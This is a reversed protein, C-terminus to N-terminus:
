KEDRMLVVDSDTHGRSLGMKKGDFSWQFDVILESKFNTIQRGPSGDLPQLWLNDADKSRFPYVVAKGDRAFRITNEQPQQMALFKTNQPSDVPLLALVVKPSSPTAFTPFAVLKGDPSIDFGYYIPLETVQETKGGALPVKCLNLGKVQDIYYVWKGDASCVSQSDIKGDSLQKLNGGGSDMRWISMRNAGGHGGLPVVIYRGNACGSPEMPFGDEQPSTLPTKSRSDLSLLSLSWDQNIVLKGDLLWSFNVVNAGSTLREAQGSGLASAPALFLDFHSQGLVSALSHGESALSLDTYDNIDHTVARLRGSPYSIEVIRHRMYNTEADWALALLGNRDPLWVPRSLVASKLEFFLNQKGTLPDVAVLGGFGDSHQGAVCVITKGDPSWAPDGLFQSMNGLLLNKEEGTELSHVVLRFKGIEPNNGVSYAFSRGDPSLAINTDVDTVLKQPTGGLVPARYLYHLSQGMEGRVFYLYNGDPSFRVGIYQVPEPPLVQTNSSTAVNRLWLSQQGNDENVNLVYKSDSSIAVLRAKGTNTIKSVSSNQFPIPPTRSLFAYIGYAAAAVLLIAVLSTIGIGLKHQRAVAVASSSAIHATSPVPSQTPEASSPPAVVGTTRRSETDRKLRKLDSRIDGAHQYRLERDKELCKNIIRELEAPLEPNLRVPATPAKHLIADFLAASTDGRFPLTGTAMEYLVAGFSFLDTRSDLEKGLAQEPSMYAVTGVATGPSTLLDETLTPAPPENSQGNGGVAVQLKALGFDLIKAPGRATIFINAPKIDRHVIGKAHAVDLADAVEIGIELLQDLEVPRGKILQRLPQGELFEMGIFCKGDQEAIEHITCINPHNLASAAQAERQFRALAQSDRATDDPLFKLAVFRHLRTDEAKYVVGMGGGGIKEVIRYHSIIQGIV